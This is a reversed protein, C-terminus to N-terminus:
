QNRRGPSTTQSGTTTGCSKAAQACNRDRTTNWDKCMVEARFGYTQACRSAGAKWDECTKTDSACDARSFAPFLLIVSLFAAVAMRKM